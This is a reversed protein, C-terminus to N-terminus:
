VCEKINEILSNKKFCYYSIVMSLFIVFLSIIFSIFLIDEGVFISNLYFIKNLSMFLYKNIIFIIPIQYIWGKFCIILSEYFLSLIIKRFSLGLSQMTFIERKRYSINILSINISCTILVLTILICIIYLFIKIILVINNMIQRAKKVNIYTIDKKRKLVIKKLYSDIGNYKTTMVLNNIPEDCVSDFENKDLNIIVENNGDLGFPISSVLKLKDIKVENDFVIENLNKFIKYNKYTFRGNYVKVKNIKNIVTDGGIDTVYINVMDKYDNLFYRKPIHAKVTCSRYIERKDFKLDLSIKNLDYENTKIMVDYSPIIIYKKLCFIGYRLVLSFVNISLCTVFVCIVLSKYRDRCRKYNVLSFWLVIRNSIKIRENKICSIKKFLEMPSYKKINRLPLLSSLIIILFIFIIPITVFPIYINLYLNGDFVEYLLVNIIKIIILNLIVSLLFGIIIGCVGLILAERLFLKYLFNNDSGLLKLLCLDRRRSNLSAKYSNYIIFFIIISLFLVLSFIIGKFTDVLNEDSSIGYLSLLSNNYSIVECNVKKCIRNTNKYVDNINKYTIFYRKNKYEKKLINEDSFNESKIIVHYSGVEKKVSDILFSRLSSFLIGISILLMFGFAVELITFISRKKNSLIYRSISM